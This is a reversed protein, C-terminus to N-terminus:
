RRSSKSKSTSKSRSTSKSTSKTGKKKYFDSAELGMQAFGVARGGVFNASAWSEDRNLWRYTKFSAVSGVLPTALEGPAGITREVDALTMGPSLRTYEDWTVVQQEGCGTLSFSGFALLVLRIRVSPRM